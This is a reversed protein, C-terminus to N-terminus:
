GDDDGVDHDDYWWIDMSGSKAMISYIEPDESSKTKSELSDVETSPITPPHMLPLEVVPPAPIDLNHCRCSQCVWRARTTPIDAGWELVSFFIVREGTRWVWAVDRHGCAMPGLTLELRQGNEFPTLATEEFPENKESYNQLHTEECSVCVCRARIAAVDINFNGHLFPLLRFGNPFIIVGTFHGCALPGASTALHGKFM